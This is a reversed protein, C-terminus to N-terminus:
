HVDLVVANTVGLTTPTAFAVGQLECYFALPIGGITASWPTVAPAFIAPGGTPDVLTLLTPDFPSFPQPAFCMTGIGLPLVMADLASTFGFKAFLFFPTPAGVAATSAMAITFPAGPAAHVVRGPAGDSGNITLLAPGPISGAACAEPTATFALTLDVGSFEGFPSAPAKVVLLTIRDGAAIPRGVLPATGAGAALLFKNASSYPDGSSVTGSRLLETGHYLFWDNARGVDLTIWTAGSIDVVGQQPCTWVVGTPGTGAGNAADWSHVIVDGQAADLGGPPPGAIKLWSPVHGFGSPATVFAPQTFPFNVAVYNAVSPLPVGGNEVSWSGNPNPGDFWNSKLDFSQAAAPVALLSAVAVAVAFSFRHAM